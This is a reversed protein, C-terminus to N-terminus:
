DSVYQLTTKLTPNRNGGREEDARLAQRGLSTCRHRALLSVLPSVKASPAAASGRRSTQSSSVRIVQLPVNSLLPDLAGAGLRCLHAM